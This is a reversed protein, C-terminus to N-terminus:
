KSSAGKNRRERERRVRRSEEEQFFDGRGLILIIGFILLGESFQERLYFKKRRFLGLKNCERLRM